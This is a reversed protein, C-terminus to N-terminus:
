RYADGGRLPSALTEQDLLLSDKRRIRFKGRSIGNDRKAIRMERHRKIRKYNISEMDCIRWFAIWRMGVGLSHTNYGDLFYSRTSKLKENM